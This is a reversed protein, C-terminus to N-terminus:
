GKEGEGYVTKVRKKPERKRQIFDFNRIKEVVM